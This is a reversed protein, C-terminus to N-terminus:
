RHSTSLLRRLFQAVPVSLLPVRLHLTQQQFYTLFLSPSIFNQYCVARSYTYNEPLSRVLPPFTVPAILDASLLVLFIKKMRKSTRQLFRPLLTRWGTPSSNHDGTLIHHFHIPIFYWSPTMKMSHVQLCSSSSSRAMLTMLLVKFPTPGAPHSTGCTVLM